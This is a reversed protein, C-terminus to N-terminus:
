RGYGLRWTARIEIADFAFMVLGNNDGHSLTVYGRGTRLGLLPEVSDNLLVVDGVLDAPDLPEPKGLVRMITRLPNGAVAAKSDRDWKYPVGLQDAYDAVMTACDMVGLEWAATSYKDLVVRLADIREQESISM